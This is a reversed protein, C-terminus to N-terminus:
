RKRVGNLVLDVVFAEFGQALEDMDADKPALSRVVPQASLFFDFMGILALHLFFPDVPRLEAGGDQDILDKFLDVARLNMERLRERVDASKADALEDVMLRHMNKASRTFRSTNTIRETLAAVPDAQSSAEWPMSSIMHDVVALLLNARDGFYYRVLAPDVGAERAILSVTVRAPPLDRLLRTAAQLVAERGVAGETPRGAGRKQQGAKAM